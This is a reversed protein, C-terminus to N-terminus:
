SARAAVAVAASAARAARQRRVPNRLRRRVWAGVRAIADTAEPLLPAFAHWVHMMGPWEELTVRGRAARIRAALHRSDDLLTEVAGVQVLLPPLGRLDGYVPSALPSRPDVGGLYLAAMMRLEDRAVMPDEPDSAGAHAAVDLDVWPSLCVAAAPLDLGADRLALMTAIVLGGGASDGALVVRQPDTGDRELGRYAAVADEVAAPFPHEPALRYDVTLARLGTADSLRSVLARHTATSGLGYGGGHLYLLTGNSRVGPASVRECPVGNVHARVVDVGAIPEILAAFRELRARAEDISSVADSEHQRLLERVREIPSDHMPSAYAREWRATLWEVAGATSRTGLEPTVLMEDSTRDM